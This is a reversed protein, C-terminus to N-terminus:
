KSTKIQQWIYTIIYLVAMIIAFINDITTISAINRASTYLFFAYFPIGILLILSALKGKAIFYSNIFYIMSYLTGFIAASGLHTAVDDFAHGFFVAIVQPAFYTYFIYGSIGIVALVATYGIFAKKQEHKSGGGAFLVFTITTIPGVFYFIIKAFLSWSAYIGADHASLFKKVIVVDLNNLLTLAFLSWFTILFQKSRFLTGLTTKFPIFVHGHAAKIHKHVYWFSATSALALSLALFSIVVFTSGWGSYAIVAGMLKILAGALSIFSYFLFLKLGQLYSAYLSSTITLLILPILWVSSLLTLNTWAPLWPVIVIFPIIVFWWRRVMKWIYEELALTYEAKNKAGSVKQVVLTSLILAPVTTISMYSFLATIDGYGVTGLSRGALLNFVYNIINIGMSASTFFVGGKFFENSWLARIRKKM